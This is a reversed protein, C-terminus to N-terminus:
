IQELYRAMRARTSEDPLPGVGAQMNDVLHKAKSTAPIACTVAPHAVVFKLFFQAWTNCGIEAAWPPLAKGRVRNFLRAEAFPRNVLVAVRREAALPLLRQEADREIISYNLQVFDLEESRLVRALEDYATATYHTIGIYRVRGQEKWARLTALHTRWDLLNHVQMLDMRQTRMRRFSQEMQRIGDDRGTTWVKTALFLKPSVGLETALDGIVGESEGYMPSSDVVSGGRRAFERLVERVPERESEAGGVDFAQYTGLGIVPLMEGSRPIPRRITAAAASTSTMAAVGAGFALRLWARRSM